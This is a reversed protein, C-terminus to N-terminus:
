LAPAEGSEGVTNLEQGDPLFSDSATLADLSRDADSAHQASVAEAAARDLDGAASYGPTAEHAPTAPSQDLGPFAADLRTRLMRAQNENLHLSVSAGNFDEIFVWAHSGAEQVRITNGYTDTFDEGYVAFGGATYTIPLDAARTPTTENLAPLAGGFPAETIKPFAVRTAHAVPTIGAAAHPGYTLRRAQLHHRLTMGDVSRPYRALAALLLATDKPYVSSAVVTAHLLEWATDFVGGGGPGHWRDRIRTAKEWDALTGKGAGQTLHYFTDYDRRLKQESEGSPAISLHLSADPTAARGDDTARTRAHHEIARLTETHDLQEVDALRRVAQRLLGAASPRETALAALLGSDTFSPHRWSTVYDTGPLIGLFHWGTHLLYETVAMPTLDAGDATSPM